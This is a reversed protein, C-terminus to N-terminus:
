GGMGHVLALTIGPVAALLIIRLLDTMLFPMVGRYTEMLTVGKAMRNVIFVNMGVPPTVLGIEVVMLALIGFWISKDADPM